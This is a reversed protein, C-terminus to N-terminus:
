CPYSRRSPLVGCIKRDYTTNALRSRRRKPCLRRVGSMAGLGILFCAAVSNKRSQESLITNRSAFTALTLMAFAILFTSAYYIKM